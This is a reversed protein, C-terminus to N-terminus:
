DPSPFARVAGTALLEYAVGIVFIVAVITFFSLIMQRKQSYTMRYIVFWCAAMLVSGLIIWEM